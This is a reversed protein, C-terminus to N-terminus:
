QLSRQLLLHTSARYILKQPFIYSNFIYLKGLCHSNPNMFRVLMLLILVYVLFFFFFSSQM